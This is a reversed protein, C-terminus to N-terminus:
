LLALYDKVVPPPDVLEVGMGPRSFRALDPHVKYAHRVVGRVICTQSPTKIEVVLASGKTYVAANTSLFLGSPSLQMATASHEPQEAGYRVFIRKYKREDRRQYKRDPSV